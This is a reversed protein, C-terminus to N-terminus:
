SIMKTTTAKETATCPPKTGVSACRSFTGSRVMSGSGHLRPTRKRSSGSPRCRKRTERPAGAAPIDISSRGHPSSAQIMKMMRCPRSTGARESVRISGASSTSTRAPGSSTGASFFSNM